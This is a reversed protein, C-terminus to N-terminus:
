GNYATLASIDATEGPALWPADAATPLRTEKYCRLLIQALGPVHYLPGEGQVSVVERPFDAPAMSLLAGNVAKTHCLAAEVGCPVSAAGRVADAMRYMKTGVAHDEDPPGYDIVRGDQLRGVFHAEARPASQADFAVTGKEFVFEQVPDCLESVAHSGIYYAYAGGALGVKLCATDYMDIPNARYLAAQVSVPDASRDPAGGLVYLMNHLYHATANSVVSDLVWRGARDKRSGAWGVGRTYYKRDRPWLVVTKACRPKGYVGALVDAKLREIAPSFSWQYGVGVLKGAADRAAAMAYADQVVACVPKECLVHSGKSLAFLTQEKHFQIPSSVVCLEADNERYFDELSAYHRAGMALLESLHKAGDPFPEVAGVLRVNQEKAHSVLAQAYTAGYGGVGCLVATVERKM